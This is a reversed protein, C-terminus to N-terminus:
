AGSPESLAEFNRPTPDAGDIGIGSLRSLKRMAARSGNGWKGDVKGTYCGHRQLLKQFAAVRDYESAASKLAASDGDSRVPQQKIGGSVAVGTALAALRASIQQKHVLCQAVSAFAKLQATTGDRLLPDLVGREARCATAQRRMEDLKRRLMAGQPCYLCEDVFSQMQGADTSTLLMTAQLREKSRRSFGPLWTSTIRATDALVAGDDLGIFDPTQVTGPDLKALRRAMRREVFYRLEGASVKGDGDGGFTTEDAEGHMATVLADTFVSMKHGTDWVAYQDGRAAALVTIGARMAAEAESLVVPPGYAPASRNTVLPGAATRGSFCSELILMVKADSQMRKDRFTQLRETLDALRYGTAALFEPSSDRALLYPASVSEGPALHKSGHGVFYVYLHTATRRVHGELRGFSEGRGFLANLQGLSPSKVTSINRAPVGKVNRLMDKIAAADAEAFPLDSANDYQGAQIILGFAEARAADVRLGVASATLLLATAIFRLAVIVGPGLTRPILLVEVGSRQGAKLSLDRM